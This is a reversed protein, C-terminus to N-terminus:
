QGATGKSWHQEVGFKMGTSDGAFFFNESKAIRGRVVISDRDWAIMTIRGSPIWVKLAARPSLRKAGLVPGDAPGQASASTAPLASAIALVLMLSRSEARM